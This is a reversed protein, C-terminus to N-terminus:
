RNPVSSTISRVSFGAWYLRLEVEPVHHRQMQSQPVSTTRCLVRM